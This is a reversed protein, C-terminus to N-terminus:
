HVKTIVLVMNFKKIEVYTLLFSFWRSVKEFFFNLAIDTKKLSDLSKM